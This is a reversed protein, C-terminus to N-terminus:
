HYSPYTTGVRLVSLPKAFKTEQMYDFGIRLSYGAPLDRLQYPTALQIMNWGQASAECSWETTQDMLVNGNPMVPIVFVRSIPTSLCLGVRFAVIEGNGFAALEDATIDTAVTCLGEFSTNGWGSTALDDTTYHGMLRQNPELDVAGSTLPLLLAVMLLSLLKKM